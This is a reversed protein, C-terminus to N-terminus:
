ASFGSYAVLQSGLAVQSKTLTGTISAAQAKYSRDSICEVMSVNDIAFSVGTNGAPLGFGLVVASTPATFLFSYTGAAAAGYANNYIQPSNWNNQWLYVAMAGNTIAGSTKTFTVRYQKGAVTTITQGILSRLGTPSSFVAVGSSTDVIANADDPTWSTLGSTFTGNVVLETGSASGVDTDALYARRIDGVLHGTNSTNTVRSAIGRTINSENNLLKSVEPANARRVMENRKTQVLGYTGSYAFDPPLNYGRSGFAFGANLAGPNGAFLWTTSNVGFTSLFTPTLTVMARAGTDASNVVTGNHKIVSVGGATAVAITPVKLGTVPDVPADPLVTMAVANIARSVINPTTDTLHSLAANRKAINGKYKGSITSSNSYQIGDDNAFRVRYLDYASCGVLMESQLASVSTASSGELVINAGASQEFRMWMPRGPETLDYITVNAAEAVIGALKPFKRKYGRFVETVGSTPNLKYFKGDTTLQFYDNSSTNLATVKKVSVSDIKTTGAATVKIIRFPNTGTLFAGTTVFRSTHTGVTPVGIQFFDQNFGVGTNNGQVSINQFGGTTESIVLTVEIVDGVNYTLGAVTTEARSNAQADLFLAGNSISAGAILSWGTSSSFDPTPAQEASLTGGINRALIESAASGLWKGTVAENYWSTHQCKETWAGGDSDKSTDYLFMATVANPSRHLAASTVGSLDQQAVSAASAAFGQAVSAAAQANILAAQQAAATAYIALASAASGSANGASTNAATASAASATQSALAALASAQSNSASVSAELAKASAIAAQAIATDAQATAIGAQTSSIVAQAASIEAQETATDSQAIAEAAKETAVSAQVLADNASTDAESAKASAINAQAIALTANDTTVQQASLASLASTSAEAAKNTATTASVVAEQAKTGAVIESAAAEQAKTEATAAASLAADASASAESAKTSATNAATLVSQASAAANSASTSAEQAKTTATTASASAQNASSLAATAFDDASQEATEAALESSAAAVAAAEAANKAATAAPTVDGIDGKPITFNFVAASPTGSNTVAAASGSAGTTVTGVSATGSSGQPGPTSVEVIIPTTENIIIQTM